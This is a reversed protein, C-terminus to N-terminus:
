ILGIPRPEAHRVRAMASHFAAVWWGVVVTKGLRTGLEDHTGVVRFGFCSKSAVVEFGPHLHDCFPITCRVVDQKVQDGQHRPCEIFWRRKFAAVGDQATICPRPRTGFATVGFSVPGFRVNGGDSIWEGCEKERELQM